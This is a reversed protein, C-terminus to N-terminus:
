LNLDEIGLVSKDEESLENYFDKLKKLDITLSQALDPRKKLTVLQSCLNKWESIKQHHGSTLVSPVNM